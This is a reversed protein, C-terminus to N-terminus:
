ITDRCWSTQTVSCANDYILLLLLQMVFRIAVATTKWFPTKTIVRTQVVHQNDAVLRKENGAPIHESSTNVSSRRDGATRQAHRSMRPSDSQCADYRLAHPRDRTNHRNTIHVFKCTDGMAMYMMDHNHTFSMNDQNACDHCTASCAVDSQAHQNGLLTVTAGSLFAGDSEVRMTQLVGRDRRM